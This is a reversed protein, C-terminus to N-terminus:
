SSADLLSSPALRVGGSLDAALVPKQRSAAVTGGLGLGAFLALGVATYRWVPRAAPTRAHAIGRRVQAELGTLRLPLPQDGLRVLLADLDDHM